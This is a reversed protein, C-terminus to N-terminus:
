KLRNISNTINKFLEEKNIPLLLKGNEKLIKGNIITTDVNTSEVNHVVQTILDTTPYTNTKNLDLIVIDALKNVEISGIQDEMGLAKAGNITAMKLTEYSSAITPNKYLGKQIFDVFSMHYFMNLNNGSGQGDTGLCVNINNKKYSTIDAFGCGLNLNSVPNHVFSVDKGNLLLQDEKSIFTCHALILKHNLFGLDNLVNIPTNGFKETITKVEGENECFHVHIPLNLETALEECLKLYEKSCTYLGHPTVAFSLLEDNKHKNYLDKFENIKNIGSEDVDGILTRSFMCRINTEKIAKLEAPWNFYMDNATTTGTEIMEICSLLTSYYMDDNNMNDEIPWIKKTLWDNLNLNDNTARFISMGLHTHANILGPLIVKNSADIVKDVDDNINTELKIIKNDEILIDLQEYLKNRKEDMTIVLGNKILTKMNDRWNIFLM